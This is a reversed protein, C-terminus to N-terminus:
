RQLRNKSDSRPSPARLLQLSSSRSQPKKRGGSIGNQMKHILQQVRKDHLRLFLDKLGNTPLPRQIVEQQLISGSGLATLPLTSIGAMDGNMVKKNRIFSLILIRMTSNSQPPLFPLPADFPWPPATTTSSTAATAVKTPTTALHIPLISTSGTTTTVTTTTVTSSTSHQVTSSISDTSTNLTEPYDVVCPETNSTTATATTHTTPEFFSGTTDSTSEPFLETATALEPVSETLATTTAQTTTAVTSATALNLEPETIITGTSTLEILFEDTTAITTTTPLESSSHPTATATSAPTLEMLPESTTSESAPKTTVTFAALIESILKSAVEIASSSLLQLLPEKDATTLLPPTSLEVAATELTALPEPSPETSTTPTSDPLEFSRETASIVIDDPTSSDQDSKTSKQTAEDPCLVRKTPWVVNFAELEDASVKKKRRERGSDEQSRTSGAPPPAQVQARGPATGRTSVRRAPYINKAPRM